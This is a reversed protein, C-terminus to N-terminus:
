AAKGSERSQKWAVAILRRIVAAQSRDEREAQERVFDRLEPPLPVSVTEGNKM